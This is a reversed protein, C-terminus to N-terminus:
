KVDAHIDITYGLSVAFCVVDSEGLCYIGLGRLEELCRVVDSATLVRPRGTKMRRPKKRSVHGKRELFMHGPNGCQPEGCSHRVVMGTAVEGHEAIWVLRHLPVTVGRFWVNVYPGNQVGRYLWCAELGGSRDLLRDLRAHVDVSAKKPRKVKLPSGNRQWRRYHLTCWGRTYVGSECGEVSCVGGSM